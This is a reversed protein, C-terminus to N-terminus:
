QIFHKAVEAIQKSFFRNGHYVSRVAKVLDNGAADKLVYGSAGAQIGLHVYEAAEHMSLMLVRTQPCCACIQKTAEIGNLSPMSVDMVAVDPYHLVAQEVAERGDSAVAVVQMDEARELLRQLVKRVLNHDDAILVSIMKKGLSRHLVTFSRHDGNHVKGQRECIVLLSSM